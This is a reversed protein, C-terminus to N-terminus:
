VVSKRDASNLGAIRASTLGGNEKHIVKIRNDQVASEDCLKPCNDTSGDDVIIIEINEYTQNIVSEVCRIIFKEVNYVPIIVSVKVM